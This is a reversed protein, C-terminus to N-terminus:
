PYRRVTFVQYTCCNEFKTM